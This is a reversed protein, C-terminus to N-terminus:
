HNKTSTVFGECIKINILIFYLIDLSALCAIKQYTRDFIDHNSYARLRDSVTLADVDDGEVGFHRHLPAIAMM